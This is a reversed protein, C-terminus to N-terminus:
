LPDAAWAFTDVGSIIAAAFSYRTEQGFVGTTKMPYERPPMTIMFVRQPPM